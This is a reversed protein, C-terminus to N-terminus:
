RAGVKEALGRWKGRRQAEPMDMLVGRVASAEYAMKELTIAQLVYSGVTSEPLAPNRLQAAIASLALHQHHWMHYARLHPVTARIHSPTLSGPPPISSSLYSRAWSTALNYEPTHTPEAQERASETPAQPASAPAAAAPAVTPPAYLYETVEHDNILDILRQEEERFAPDDTMPAPGAKTVGEDMKKHEIIDEATFFLQESCEEPEIAVTESTAEQLKGDCDISLDQMAEELESDDFEDTEEDEDEDGVLYGAQELKSGLNVKDLWDVVAITEKNTSSDAGESGRLESLKPYDPDPGRLRSLNIRGVRGQSANTATTTKGNNLPAEQDGAADDPSDDTPGHSEEPSAPEEGELQHSDLFDEQATEYGATDQSQEPKEKAEEGPGETQDAATVSEETLANTIEKDKALPTRKKRPKSVSSRPKPKSDYDCVLPRPPTPKLQKRKEELADFLRFGAYADAAAYHIQQHNLPLSWDSSRVNYMDEPDDILHGGKYLPLQLHQQVQPALAVLKNNVKSPNTVYHEVLNHLRSLEFVGQSEIKLYKNVRSFDGKIAVGVKYIDPSELIAKLTPPMLQAATSGQFLAVHFLAIRDECALQILSVNKKISEPSSYPKWEIDFGLVTENVFRKAVREAVEKTKCYHVLIQSGEPDRYLASSWFSAKTNEPATMAARLVDKPIQYELPNHTESPEEDAEEAEPDGQETNCEGKDSSAPVYDTDSTDGLGGDGSSSLVISHALASPAANQTALDLSPPNVPPSMTANAASAEMPSPNGNAVYDTQTHADGHRVIHTLRGACVCQQDATGTHGAQGCQQRLKGLSTGVDENHVQAAVVSVAPTSVTGSSQVTHQVPKTSFARDSFTVPRGRKWRCDILPLSTPTSLSAPQNLRPLSTRFSAAETLEM